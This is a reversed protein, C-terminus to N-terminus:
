RAWQYPKLLLLLHRDIGLQPGPPQPYRTNRSSGQGGKLSPATTVPSPQQLDQERPEPKVPIHSPRKYLLSKM